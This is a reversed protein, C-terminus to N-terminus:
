LYLTLLLHEEFVKTVQANAYNEKYGLEPHSYIGRGIEYIKERTFIQGPNLSLFEIIEFETKTFYIPIGNVTVSMGSYNIVPSDTGTSPVEKIRKERRLHAQVRGLLERM